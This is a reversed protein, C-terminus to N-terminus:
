GLNARREMIKTHIAQVKNSSLPKHILETVLTYDKARATDSYALSSTLLYIFCRTVLEAEYPKLAELVDWGSMLPMNLDLFILEPTQDPIAQQLYSVAEQPSQFSRVTDGLGERKLLKETLFVSIFDDDILVTQM